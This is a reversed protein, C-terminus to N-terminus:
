FFYIYNSRKKKNFFYFPPHSLSIVFARVDFHFITINHLSAQQFELSLSLSSLAVLPINGALRPVINYFCLRLLM